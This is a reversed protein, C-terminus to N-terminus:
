EYLIDKYVRITERACKQWTFTSAQKLGCDILQSRLDEDILVRRISDAWVQIEKGDILLVGQGLVEPMSTLNMAITPTGCSIAELPPLGFSERESPFVFAESLSYLILLDSASLSGLIVVRDGLDFKNALRKFHLRRDEHACVIVLDVDKFESAIQSFAKILIDINKRPEYGMGLIFRKRIGFITSLKARWMEKEESQAPKFIPNPALPIVTVRDSDLDFQRVIQDKEYKSVTIIRDVKRIAKNIVWKSYAMIAWRKQDSLNRSLNFPNDSVVQIIDHLTVITKKTVGTSATNCLYHVVDVQDTVIQKKLFIQERLPMGLLPLKGPVVKFHWNSKQSIKKGLLLRDIYVYYQNKEDIECMFQILNETYTKFGGSQPHTLFRADIGIRM